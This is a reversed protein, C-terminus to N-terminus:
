PNRPVLQSSKGGPKWLAEMIAPPNMPLRFLRVGAAHCVANAVAAAPPVINAEGVGRVGFPHGPNPVEVICTEIMPLDLSTPMRYDLLSSNMMAGQESMWYEENLAWGIGQVSGGQMQGEVYSPHIAKGADQVCTFRLITTKGTEPDVEVDAISGAFSGGVGRPNVAGRGVVPGGTEGLRAALEAFSMSRDGSRFVGGAAEVGAAETEWLKAAREKLQRMVDQAAEYAAWGTAFTTRSGGTVATFGVSDTDVVTPQVAEAAIGLVEAAQMAISTRTGGIDTSGEVLNVTGDSNVSITCSSPLGVNFWFGLAVGRGRNPGQLPTKYHPSNKMAELVEVCGIKRFKPGDARRTGEKAANKLRFEIPDIGLKQALEDVVSETAFAANPAGPARYAATSPKNVVVDYGDITVHELDYAAFVTMGAPGVMAGPYAGAEFALYAQAATIRGDKRAGIKVKMHSGPTPGTAEFVDKRSMVIKVPRGTKKSLMAAVPELYVPIKGGFGGGIETPTVKVQSVPLDLVCATVDRVVFAGQTSCWILVRGDNNWLATANQPEIYGQHVTATDFEREVILDAEAFGKEIDGKVHRFHEAVNGPTDTPAGLEKMRLSGHIVPADARMADPATLACALPEYDVEILSAAEEAVHMNVAAVAAIAHGRYLVKGRALMNGRVCSLPTEGEGLDVIRDPTRPFDDATVVAMVGPFAQAKGTDIRLIRAHAHPSRLVYGHLMGALQVDAGYIARGTVKDAGDHRVPRTGIVKYTPMSMGKGGARM